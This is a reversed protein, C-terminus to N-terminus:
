SSCWKSDILRLKFSPGELFLNLAPRFYSAATLCVVFYFLLPKNWCESLLDAKFWINCVLVQRSDWLNPLLESNMPTHNAHSFAATCCLPWSSLSQSCVARFGLGLEWAEREQAFLLRQWDWTGSRCFSPLPQLQTLPQGSSWSSGRVIGRMENTSLVCFSNKSFCM